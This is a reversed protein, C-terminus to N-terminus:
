EKHRGKRDHHNPHHPGLRAPNKKEKEWVAREREKNGGRRGEDEKKQPKYQYHCLGKIASSTANGWGKKLGNQAQGAM